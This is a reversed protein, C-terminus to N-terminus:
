PKAGADSSSPEPATESSQATEGTTPQTSATDGCTTESSTVEVGNQALFRIADRSSQAYNLRALSEQDMRIFTNIGVIRGCRDVLPGGSSGPSITASHALVTSGNQGTHQATLEGRSVTLQTQGLHDWRGQSFAQFFNPDQDVVFSPYGGAVVSDLREVKTAIPLIHQGTGVDNEVELLAFDEEGPATSATSALIRAALPKTLQKNAVFLAGDKVGKVVHGNTLIHNKTVFFGSGISTQDPGTMGVVIVTGAELSAVLSATPLAVNQQGMDPRTPEGVFPTIAGGASSHTNPSKGPLLPLNSIGDLRDVNPAECVNGNLGSRLKEIQDRLSHDIQSQIEPSNLNDSRLKQNQEPYVLVGPWMLYAVFLALLIALGSIWATTALYSTAVPRNQDHALRSASPEERPGSQTVSQVNSASETQSPVLKQNEIEPTNSRQQETEGLLEPDTPVEDYSAEPDSRLVALSFGAPLFQTLVTSTNLAGGDTPKETSGWGTLVVTDGDYFIGEAARVNLAVSLMDRTRTDASSLSMELIARLKNEAIERDPDSLTELSRFPGPKEAYWTIIDEQQVRSFAREPLAFLNAGDSGCTKSMWSYLQPFLRIVDTGDFTCQATNDIGTAVVIHTHKSGIV